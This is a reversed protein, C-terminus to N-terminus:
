EVPLIDIGQRDERIRVRLSWVATRTQDGRPDYYVLYISGDPMECGIAYVYTTSDIKFGRDKAPTTWTRASDDSWMTQIGGTTNWGFLCVITGDRLTLLCPADMAIGTLQPQSWTRAQDKSFAIEGDPRAIMVLTGDRALTLAPEDM